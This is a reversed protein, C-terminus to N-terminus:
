REEDLGQANRINKPYNPSSVIQEHVKGRYLVKGNGPDVVAKEHVKLGYRKRLLEVVSGEKETWEDFVIVPRDLKGLYRELRSPDNTVPMPSYDKEYLYSYIPIRSVVTDYPKLYKKVENAYRHQTIAVEYRATVKTWSSVTFIVLALLPITVLLRSRPSTKTLFLAMAASMFGIGVLLVGILYRAEFHLVLGVTVPLLIVGVALLNRRYGRSSVAGLVIAVMVLALPFLIESVVIGFAVVNYIIRKPINVGSLGTADPKIGVTLDENLRYVAEDFSYDENEVWQDTAFLTGKGTLAVTGSNVFIYTSYGIITAVLPVLAVALARSLFMRGQLVLQVALFLLLYPLTEPKILYALALSAGALLKVSLRKQSIGILGALLFPAWIIEAFGRAAWNFLLGNLATTIGAITGSTEGFRVRVSKYVLLVLALFAVASILPLVTANALGFAMPSVLLLPIGPTFLIEPSGALTM